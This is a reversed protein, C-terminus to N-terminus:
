PRRVIISACSGASASADFSRDPGTSTPPRAPPLILQGDLDQHNRAEHYHTVYERVTARLHNEGLLV